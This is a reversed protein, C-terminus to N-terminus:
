MSTSISCSVLLLLYNIQSNGPKLHTNCYIVLKTFFTKWSDVATIIIFEKKYFYIIVIITNISAKLFKTKFLQPFQQLIATEIVM